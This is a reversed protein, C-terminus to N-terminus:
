AGSRSPEARSPHLKQRVPPLLSVLWLAGAVVFVLGYETVPIFTVQYIQALREASFSGGPYLTYLGLTLVLYALSAARLAWKPLGLGYIQTVILITLFGTFFMTWIISQQTFYAVATGHVLVIVELALTWYRDSHVRTRALSLQVFLLFMYFFGIVHAWSSVVPHFWFTYTVAWAIYYSHSASTLRVGDKPLPAERGFFLGRWRNKMILILVLMFIVSYQSSWVPVDQATGDYFVATQAFHLAVFAANVGLLWWNWRSLSDDLRKKSANLRFILVWLLLQHVLYPGWASFRTVWTPDPLKWYYWAAGQDPLLGVDPVLTADFLPILAATVFAALVGIMLVRRDTKV